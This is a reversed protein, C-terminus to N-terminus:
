LLRLIFLACVLDIINLFMKLTFFSVSHKKGFVRLCAIACAPLNIKKLRSFFMNCITRNKWTLDYFVCIQMYVCEFICLHHHPSFILVFSNGDVTVIIPAERTAWVTFFRGAICSVWTQDRPQSPGRFFPIVVGELM